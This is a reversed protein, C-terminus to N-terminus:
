GLYSKVSKEGRKLKVLAQGTNREAEKALALLRSDQDRIQEILQRVENHFPEPLTPIFAAKIASDRAHLSTEIVEWDDEVLQTDINALQEKVADIQQRSTHTNM